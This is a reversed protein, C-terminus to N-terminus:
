FIAQKNIDISLKENEFDFGLEKLLDIEKSKQSINIDSEQHVVSTKEISLNESEGCGIYLLPLFLGIFTMIKM